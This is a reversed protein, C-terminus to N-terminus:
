KAVGLKKPSIKKFATIASHESVNLVEIGAKAFQRACQEFESAWLRLRSAGAGAKNKLWPYPPYFYAEGSKSLCMDFGFLYLQSPRAQYVRNLGCAGSHSGNLIGPVESMPVGGKNNNTFVHMWNQREAAIVEARPLRKVAHNRAYVPLLLRSPDAHHQKLGDWIWEIFLRDMTVIEDVRKLHQAAGNIAIIKGPLKAQDVLGFSWGGGIISIIDTMSGRVAVPITEAVWYSDRAGM